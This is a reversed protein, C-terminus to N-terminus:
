PANFFRFYWMESEVTPFTSFPVRCQDLVRGVAFVLM